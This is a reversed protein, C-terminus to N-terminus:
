CQRSHQLMSAAAPTIRHVIPESSLQGQSKVIQMYLTAQCIVTKITQSLTPNPLMNVVSSSTAHEKDWSCDRADHGVLESQQTRFEYGFAVFCPFSADAPLREGLRPM